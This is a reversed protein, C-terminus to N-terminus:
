RPPRRRRGARVGAVLLPGLVFVLEFLSTEAAIAANRLPYRGTGVATM